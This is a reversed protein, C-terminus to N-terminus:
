DAPYTVTVRTGRGIASDIRLAAGAATARERMTRLGLHGPRALGPDFGVGDDTVTLVLRRTGDTGHEHDHDHDLAVGVRRADAHKLANHLAELALRYLHEEVDPPLPVPDAPVHVDVPVQERASM